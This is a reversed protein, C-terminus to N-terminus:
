YRRQAIIMTISSGSTIFETVFTNYGVTAFLNPVVVDRTSLAIRWAISTPQSLPSM